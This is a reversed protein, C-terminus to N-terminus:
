GGVWGGVGEGGWFCLGVCALREMGGESLEWGGEQDLGYLGDDSGEGWGGLDTRREWGGVWGGM